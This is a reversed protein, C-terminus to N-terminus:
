AAKEVKAPLESRLCMVIDDSVLLPAGTIACREIDTGDDNEILRGSAEYADAAIQNTIELAEFAADDMDASAKEVAQFAEVWEQWLRVSENRKELDIM